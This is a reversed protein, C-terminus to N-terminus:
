SVKTGSRVCMNLLAIHSTEGSAPCFMGNYQDELASIGCYRSVIPCDYRYVHNSQVSLNGM